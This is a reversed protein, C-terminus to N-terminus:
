ARNGGFAWATATRKYLTVISDQGNTSLLSGESEITDSGPVSFVITTADLQQCIIATGIDIPTASNDAIIVTSTGTFHLWKNNDTAVPVYSATTVAKVATEGIAAAGDEGTLGTPGTAGTAGTSGTPGTAGTSTIETWYATATDPQQGTGAQINVYLLGSYSVTQGVTYATGAGYEGQYSTGMDITDGVLDLNSTFPNFKYPM